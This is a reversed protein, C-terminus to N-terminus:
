LLSILCNGLPRKAVANITKRQVLVQFQQATRNNQENYLKQLRPIEIETM